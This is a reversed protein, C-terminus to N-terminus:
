DDKGIVIRDVKTAQYTGKYTLKSGVTARLEEVSTEAIQKERETRRRKADAQERADDACNVMGRLCYYVCSFRYGDDAKIEIPTVGHTLMYGNFYVVWGDRAAITVDYEPVSLYGGRAKRRAVPMASWVPFNNRDRHYPLASTQNIVGSTWYVDDSLRWDDNIEHSKDYSYDVVEPVEEVLFTELLKAAAVIVAHQEPQQHAMSAPRCSERNMVVSKPAFGFTRSVNRMGSGRVTTSMPTEILAKRFTSFDGPYPAYILVPEGTEDDVYCGAEHVNAELQPVEDGIIDLADKSSMVRTVPIRLLSGM